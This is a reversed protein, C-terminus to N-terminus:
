NLYFCVSKSDSYQWPQNKVIATAAEEEMSGVAATAEPRRWWNTRGYM